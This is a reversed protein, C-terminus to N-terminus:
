SDGLRIASYGGKGLAVATTKQKFGHVFTKDGVFSAIPVYTRFLEDSAVANSMNDLIYRTGGVHVALVAHYVQTRTNRLVIFQLQEPAFGLDALLEMKAIAYDECDGTGRAASQALTQWSDGRDSRYTIAANVARNILRIADLQPLDRAAEAAAAFKKGASSECLDACFDQVVRGAAPQVSSWQGFAPLKGVPVVVSRFVNYDPAVRPAPMEFGPEHPLSATEVPDISAVRLRLVSLDAAKALNQTVPATARSMDLDDFRAEALGFMSIWALTAIAITKTKNLM